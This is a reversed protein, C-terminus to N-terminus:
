IKSRNEGGYVFTSLCLSLQFSPSSHPSGLIFAECFLIPFRLGDELLYPYAEPALLRWSICQLTRWIYGMAQTVAGVWSRRSPKDPQLVCGWQALDQSFEGRAMKDMHGNPRCSPELINSEWWIISYLKVLQQSRLGQRVLLPFVGAQNRGESNELYSTLEPRRM